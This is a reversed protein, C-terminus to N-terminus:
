RRPLIIMSRPGGNGMTSLESQLERNASALEESTADVLDLTKALDAASQALNTL